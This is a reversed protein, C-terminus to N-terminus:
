ELAFPSLRGADGRELCVPFPHVRLSLGEALFRDRDPVPRPWPARPAPEPVVADSGARRRRRYAVLTGARAVENDLRHGGVVVRGDDDRMSVHTSITPSAAISARAIRGNSKAEAMLITGAPPRPPVHSVGPRRRRRRAPDNHRAHAGADAHRPTPCPFFGMRGRPTKRLHLACSRRRPARAGTTASAHEKPAHPGHVCSRLIQPPDSTAGLENRSDRARRSDCVRVPARGRESRFPPRM